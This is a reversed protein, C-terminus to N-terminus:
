SRQYIRVGDSSLTVNLSSPYISRKSTADAGSMVSSSQGMEQKSAKAKDQALDLYVTNHKIHTQQFLSPVVLLVTMLM